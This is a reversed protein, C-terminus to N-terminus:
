VAFCLEVVSARVILLANVDSNYMIACVCVCVCVVHCEFVCEDHFHSCRAMSVCVNVCIYM